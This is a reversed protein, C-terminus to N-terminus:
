RLLRRVVGSRDIDSERLGAAERMEDAQPRRGWAEYLRVLDRAIEVALSDAPGRTEVLAGRVELLAAEADEFRGLDELCAGLLRRARIVREHDAPWAGAELLVARDLFPEAEGCEGRTRLVTAFNLLTPAIAPTGAWASDLVPIRARYIAEAVDDRGRLHEAWAINTRVVSTFPHMEGVVAAFGEAAEGYLVVAEDLDGQREVIWALTNTAYVTPATNEGGIEELMALAERQLAAAEELRGKRALLQANARLANALQTHPSPYTRRMTALASGALSLAEDVAEQRGLADSLDLMSLATAPDDAGLRGTRLGLVERFRLEATEWDAKAHAVWGLNALTAELASDPPAAMGRYIELAEEYLPRAADPDGGMQLMLGYTVLTQALEVRRGPGLGRAIRMAEDLVSRASDSRAAYTLYDGLQDLSRLFLPDDPPVSGRLLDVTEQGLGIAREPQDLNNYAAAIVGMLRARVEPDTEPRQRWREVARDLAERVTVEAGPVVTPDASALVDSLLGTLREARDRERSVRDAHIGMAAGFGALSVMVTLMLGAAAPHRRVLKGIRYWAGDGRALVPHGALHRDIELALEAASAYRERPDRELAKLVIADLDGRLCRGSRADIARRSPPLPAEDALSAFRRRSAMQGPAGLAEDCLLRYLLVGLAYVDSATTVPDGRVQEPSAYEPTLPSWVARGGETGEALLKAVGFDLLRPRGDESVLINAPKLDRHVILSQHACHVADCVAMFLGLRERVGLGHRECYRDIPEGEVYEMVLYPRGDETRGGDFVRAISPHDLRALIQREILFHRRPEEGVIDHRLLKIAVKQRFQGDARSALLVTGMGGQGLLGEVRYPGIRDGVEIGPRQNPSFAGQFSAFLRDFPGAGEPPWEEGRSV